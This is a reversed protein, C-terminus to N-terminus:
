AVPPAGAREIVKKLIVGAASLPGSLAAGMVELIDPAMGALHNVWRELRGENAQDGKATEKELHQVAERLEDKEVSPDDPRRAIQRYVAAYLLALEPSGAGGTVTAHAGAGVAVGTGSLDGTRIDDGTRKWSKNNGVLDGTINIDGGGQNVVNIAHPANLTLGGSPESADVPEFGQRTQLDHIDLTYLYRRQKQGPLDATTAARAVQESGAVCAREFSLFGSAERGQGEPQSADLSQSRAMGTCEVLLVDGADVLERLTNLDTLVGRDWALGKPPKGADRRTRQRYLGALAHGELAVILSLLENELCLAAFLVALDLCTARGEQLIKVPARVKQVVGARPDFPALDYNPGRQAVARYLAAALGVPGEAQLLDLRNIYRPLRFAEVGDQPRVFRALARPEAQTWDYYDKM